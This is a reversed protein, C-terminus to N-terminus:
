RQVEVIGLPVADAPLRAGHEDFAPLREGTQLNYLGVLLTYRGPPLDAPLPVAREDAIVEGAAWLDTPYDGSLPPGDGQALPQREEGVLHVFVSLPQGPPADCAWYLIFRLMQGPQVTGDWEPDWAVLWVGEGLRYALVT